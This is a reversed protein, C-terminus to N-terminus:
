SLIPRPDFTVRVGAILGGEVHTWNAVQLPEKDAIRLESWTVVDSDSALRLLIDNSTTAAFMGALGALFEDPGRTSGLAGDFTVNPALLSRLPEPDGAAWCAFYLEAIERPQNPPIDLNTM